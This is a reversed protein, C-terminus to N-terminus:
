IAQDDILPNPRALMRLADPDTIRIRAGDFIAGNSRLARIARSINEPTMGLLSALQRKEMTLDFATAGTEQHVRLVYNALREVSSRLKLNKSNKISSRYALALEGVVARAFSSDHAFAARVDESRMRAVRSPGITRASLLYPGNHITAAVIFSASPDLRDMSTERGNWRSYLEIGGSLVIHLHRAPDGERIVDTMAPFDTAEAGAILLDFAAVDMDRFLALARLDSKEDPQM